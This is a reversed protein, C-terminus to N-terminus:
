VAVSEAWNDPHYSASVRLPIGIDDGSQEMLQQLRNVKPLSAKGGAPLEFVMEDHVQMVICHDKKERASVEKLYDHCRWM